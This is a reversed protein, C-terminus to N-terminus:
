IKEIEKIIEKQLVDYINIENLGLNRSFIGNKVKKISTKIERIEKPSFNYEGKIKKYFAIEEHTNNELMYYLLCGFVAIDLSIINESPSIYNDLTNMIVRTQNIKSSDNVESIKEKIQLNEETTNLEIEEKADILIRKQNM